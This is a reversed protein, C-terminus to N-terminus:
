TKDGALAARVLSAWPYEPNDCECCLTDDRQAPCADRHFTAPLDRLLTTLRAVRKIAVDGATLRAIIEARTRLSINATRDRLLGMLADPTDNNM